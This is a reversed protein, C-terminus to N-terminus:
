LVHPDDDEDDYPEPSSPGFTTVMQARLATTQNRMVVNMPESGDAAMWAMTSSLTLEKLYAFSFGDTQAAITALAAKSLQLEPDADVNWLQLYATREEVGPLGFHYKRDFRSPREIIAADLREPHNTTAITLVGAHGAFGDLENLFQSRNRDTLMSDLDEFVLLCPASKRARTFVESIDDADPKHGSVLRKVYICRQNLHNVLAKVLHTKGNGPPGILLIGRKWPVRYRDYVERSAFFRSVDEVIGEKLGPALVLTDLTASRIAAYMERDKLFGDGGFVLIEGHLEANWMCVERFFGYAAKRDPAILAWATVQRHGRIFHLLVCELALDNWVIDLWAQRVWRKVTETERKWGFTSEAYPQMRERVSCNGTHAYKLPDFDSDVTQLVFRDPYMGTLMQGISYTITDPNRDLADSLLYRASSGVGDGPVGLRFGATRDAPAQVPALDRSRSSSSVSGETM